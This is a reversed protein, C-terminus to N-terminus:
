TMNSGACVNISQGTIGRADDSALYLALAAVEEPEILREQLSMKKLIQDWVNEPSIGLMESLKALTGEPGTVMETNAIGPCIANV